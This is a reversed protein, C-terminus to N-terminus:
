GRRCGLAMHHACYVFGFNERGCFAFDAHGVEGIPWRCTKSTLQMLTLREHFPPDPIPHLPADLSLSRESVGVATARRNSPPAKKRAAKSYPSNLKNQQRQRNHSHMGLLGLRSLKGIVSNRTIGWIAAIKSASEGKAWQEKLEAIREAFWIQPRPTINHKRRHGDRDRIKLCPKCFLKQRGSGSRTHEITEGCQQCIFTGRWVIPSGNLWTTEHKWSEAM